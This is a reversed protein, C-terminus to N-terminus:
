PRDLYEALPPKILAVMEPTDMNEPTILYVGTDIKAPVQRGQLYDVLIPSHDLRSDGVPLADASGWSYTHYKSFDTDRSVYTGIRMSACGAALLAAIAVGFTFTRATM